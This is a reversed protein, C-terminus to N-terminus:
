EKNAFLAQVEAASLAKKYLRFQDMAGSYSKIWDDTPGPGNIHKNWGGLVLNGITSFDLPGRPNGANKVDTQGSSMGDVVAGDFYYTMKSTVENYAFALHHWQGDFLPKTFTGELWQDMLGLKMTTQTATQNEVLLFLASYHWGSYKPDVFSFVFETRGTQAPNKLWMALTFSTATKMDNVNMYKVAKADSGQLASGKIGDVLTLPNQVAPNGSVEDAINFRAQSNTGGFPVFFRLDGTPLTQSDTPYDSGLKPKNIKQCSGLVLIMLASSLYAILNKKMNLNKSNQFITKKVV